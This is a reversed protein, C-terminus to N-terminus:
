HFSQKENSTIKHFLSRSLFFSIHICVPLFRLSIFSMYWFLTNLSLNCQSAWTNHLWQFGEFCSDGIFVYNWEEHTLQVWFMFFQWALILQSFIMSPNQAGVTERTLLELFFNPKMLCDTSLFILLNLLRIISLQLLRQSCWVSASVTALWRWIHCMSLPFLLSNSPLYLAFLYILDEMDNMGLLKSFIM